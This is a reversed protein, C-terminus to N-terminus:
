PHRKASQEPHRVRAISKEADVGHLDPHLYHDRESVPKDAEVIIRNANAWLDHRVGTVQWCVKQGPKAGAIRFRNNKVEEQIHLDPAGTGVPTLQYRLERNVAEFWEPLEVLSEGNGDAIVAGDYVNKMESSEVFSHSLYKTEPYQPHDIQFGGGGKFLKGTVVVDGTLWAACCDSALYAAHNNNPNFAAIGANPARGVVGFSFDTCEGWVGVNSHSTGHVGIASTSSARVGEGNISRANVASGNDSVALVGIGPSISNGQSSIGSVGVGGFGAGGSVGTGRDSVGQVATGTDSSANIGTAGNTGKADVAPTNPLNSNFVGNM